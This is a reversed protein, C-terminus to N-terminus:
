SQVDPVFEKDIKNKWGFVEERSLSINLSEFFQLLGVSGTGGYSWAFGTFTHVTGDKFTATTLYWYYDDWHLRIKEPIGHKEILKKANELSLETVGCEELGDATPLTKEM